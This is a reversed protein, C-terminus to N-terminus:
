SRDAARVSDGWDFTGQVYGGLVFWRARQPQVVLYRTPRVNKGLQSGVTLREDDFMAYKTAVAAAGDQVWQPATQPEYVTARGHVIVGRLDAYGVGFDVLVSVRPDRLVNVVTPNEVTTIFLRDDHYAFWFPAVTARGSRGVTAV